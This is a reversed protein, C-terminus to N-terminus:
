GARSLWVAPSGLTAVDLAGLASVDGLVADGVLFLAVVAALDAAVGLVVGALVAAVGLVVVALVLVAAGVAGVDELSSQSLQSAQELTM